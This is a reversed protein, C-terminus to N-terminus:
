NEYVPVMKHSVHKESKIITEDIFIYIRLGDESQIIKALKDSEEEKVQIIKNDTIVGYYVFFDDFNTGAWNLGNDTQLPLSGGGFYWEWKADKLKIFGDYLSNDKTYFVLIGDKVVELHIIEEVDMNTEKMEGLLQQKIPTNEINSNCSSLLFISIISLFAIVCFRINKKM